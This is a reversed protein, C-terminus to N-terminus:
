AACDECQKEPSERAENGNSAQGVEPLAPQLLVVEAATTGMESVTREPLTHALLRETAPLVQVHVLNKPQFM